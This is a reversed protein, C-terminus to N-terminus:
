TFFSRDIQSLVKALEARTQAIEGPDQRNLIFRFEDILKAVYAREDGLREEYLRELRSLVAQNEAQERPHVKLAQLAALRKKVEDPGMTGPRGEILKHYTQGTSVVTVDVELLGSSDYTLRVELQQTGADGPPMSVSIAGLLANEAVLRAEGQYIKVEVRRQNRQLQARHRYGHEPRQVPAAATGLVEAIEKL